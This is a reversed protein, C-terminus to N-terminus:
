LVLTISAFLHAIQSSNCTSRFFCKTLLVEAGLIDTFLLSFKLCALLHTEPERSGQNVHYASRLTSLEKSKKGVSLRTNYKCVSRILNWADWSGFLDQEVEESPKETSEYEEQMYSALSGEVEVLLKPVEYMPMHIAFSMFSGITLAEQIARAYQAIGDNEDSRGSPHLNPGPIIINSIGCFSAYAVEITLVQHSLSMIVPDPSCLDIWPSVYGILQSVTSGPTLPTDVPNLPPIIPAPPVGDSPELHSLTELHNSLLTLVRSHFFPTTIPTTLM